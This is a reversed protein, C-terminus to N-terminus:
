RANTGYKARQRAAPTGPRKGLTANATGSMSLSGNGCGCSNPESAVQSRATESADAAAAHAANRSSGTRAYEAPRLTGATPPVDRKDHSKAKPVNAARVTTRATCSRAQSGNKNVSSFSANRKNRRANACRSKKKCSAQIVCDSPSVGSCGLIRANRNARSCGNIGSYAFQVRRAPHM